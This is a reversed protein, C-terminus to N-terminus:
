QRSERPLRLMMLIRTTKERTQNETNRKPPRTGDPAKARGRTRKPGPPPESAPPPLEQGGGPGGPRRRGGTPEDSWYPDLIISVGSIESMFMLVERFDAGNLNLNVRIDSFRYKTEFAPLRYEGPEYPRGADMRPYDPDPEMKPMSSAAPLADASELGYTLALSAEVFGPLILHPNNSFDTYRFSMYQLNFSGMAAKQNLQLQFTLKERPLFPVERGVTEDGPFEAKNKISRFRSLRFSPHRVFLIRRNASLRDLSCIVINTTLLILLTQFWWSHYMDYLGLINFLRYFFQGFAKFYAAPDENQPILTGIISTAALTLLLVITLRVSAFFDWIKSFFGASAEQKPM